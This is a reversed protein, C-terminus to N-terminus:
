ALAWPVTLLNGAADRTVRGVQRERAHLAIDLRHRHVGALAHTRNGFHFRRCRDDLAEGGRQAVFLGEGRDSGDILGAGKLAAGGGMSSLLGGGSGAAGVTGASAGQVAVAGSHGGGFLRELHALLGGDHGVPMFPLTPPTIAAIGRLGMVYHRCTVCGEIHAAARAYDPHDESLVGFAFDRLMRSWEDDGCGRSNMSEVVAGIKPTAGDMIKEMRAASVGLLGAAERRSYGHILTLSVANREQDNLRGKLRAIFRQLKVRDDLQEDIAVEIGHAEIEVDAHQAPRSDRYMDAARRFTVEVLLGTLNRVKTGRKIQECVGHWAQCYADEVDTADMRMNRAALRRRVVRTVEAELTKYNANAAAEAEEARSLPRRGVVLGNM